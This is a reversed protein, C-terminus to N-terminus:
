ERNDWAEIASTKSGTNPGHCFCKPCVVYHRKRTINYYSVNPKRQEHGCFPCPKIADSKYKMLEKLRAEENMM